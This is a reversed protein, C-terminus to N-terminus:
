TSQLLTFDLPPYYPPSVWNASNAWVTLNSIETSGGFFLGLTSNACAYEAMTFAPLQDGVVSNDSLSGFGQKLSKPQPAGSLVPQAALPAASVLTLITAAGSLLSRVRMKM